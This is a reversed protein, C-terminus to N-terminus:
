QLPVLATILLTMALSISAIEACRWSIAEAQLSGAVSYYVVAECHCCSGQDLVLPDDVVVTADRIVHLCCPLRGLAM